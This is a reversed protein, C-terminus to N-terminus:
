VDTPDVAVDPFSRAGFSCRRAPISRSASDGGSTSRKVGVYKNLIREIGKILIWRDFGFSSTVFVRSPREVEVRRRRRGNADTAASVRSFHAKRVRSSSAELRVKVSRRDLRTRADNSQNGLADSPETRKRRLPKV